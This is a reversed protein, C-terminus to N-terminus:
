KRLLKVLVDIIPKLQGFERGINGLAKAADIELNALGTQAVVLKAQEFILKQKQAETTNYASFLQAQQNLMRAAQKLREDESKLNNLSQVINKTESDVKSIQSATLGVEQLTKDLNARAQDLGTESIINTEAKIKETQAEINAVQASAIKAQTYTSGMDTASVSSGSSQPSAGPGQSYALMPNLGAAKMDSVTTQYRNAYQNASFAQADNQNSRTFAQSLASSAAAALMPVIM